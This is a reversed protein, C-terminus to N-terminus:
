RSGEGATNLVNVARFLAPPCGHSVPASQGPQGKGCNFSGGLVWESEGGVAEMANWFETTTGQYAVDKLQSGVRGAQIEYFRQGTFQFNYRQMDISWSKDGVVYIGRDVGGILDDLTVDAPAPQLSVNPMRQLPVSSPGDGYACGNSRGFGQRAAMQRNLQYGVLVGDRIIDWRQAPVGEDDWEATSLGHETLRDGTVHMVPSGYQLTGLKDLTAFSTGAYNAEYGLVRDLETAHGISEHITLWLNTPHIVLDYRGPEVSPSAMKEELLSPVQEAEAMYDHGATFHEWGRGVPLSCSRMTDFAGTAEDTRTATFDGEVRIRQQTLDAGDLSALYKGELVQKVVFDVHSAKGSSLIRDNVSTLLAVKDEDAVNFPHVEYPSVWTGKQAPEPALEVPESNLPALTTAIAVAAAATRAAADPSLDVDSAFGWAGGHVVRVAYGVAENDVLRELNRDRVKVSQSRRREFRFDAYTAGLESARTLAAEGLRRYPLDLFEPEVDPM